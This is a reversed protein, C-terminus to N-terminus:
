ATGSLVMFSDKHSTTKAFQCRKPMGMSWAIILIVIRESPKNSKIAACVPKISPGLTNALMATSEQSGWRKAL